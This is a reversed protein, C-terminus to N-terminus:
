GKRRGTMELVRVVVCATKAAAAGTVPDSAPDLGLRRYFHSKFRRLLRLKESAGGVVRARGLCVVSEFRYHCRGEPRHPRARGPHRSVVFCVKPNSRLFELKRGALKSHFVLKGGLYAYSVPVGYPQGGRSMCLCGADQERLVREMDRRTM